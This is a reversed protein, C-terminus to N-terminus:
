RMTSLPPIRLMIRVDNHILQLQELLGAWRRDLTAVGAVIYPHVVVAAGTSVVHAMEVVRLLQGDSTEKRPLLVLATEKWLRSAEGLSRIGRELVTDPGSFDCSVQFLGPLPHARAVSEPRQGDTDLLVPLGPTWGHLLERVYEVNGLVDRGCVCISHFSSRHLIRKLEGTLGEISYLTATEAEDAFQVFVQRRGLWPGSAQIGVTVGSLAAALGASRM